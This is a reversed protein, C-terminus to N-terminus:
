KKKPPIITYEALIEKEKDDEAAESEKYPQEVYIEYLLRPRGGTNYDVTTKLSKARVLYSLYRQVTVASFSTHDTIDKCTFHSADISRITAKINEMTKKQLGKELEMAFSNTPMGMVDIVEQSIKRKDGLLIQKHLYKNIAQNFRTFDFPKVLYDVVGLRLATNIEEGSDAATVMIVDAPIGETRITKLLELGSILPMYVDLIVLDVKNNKLFELAAQGDGFVGSIHLNKSTKEIYQKDLAAVMPDDEVIIIHTM